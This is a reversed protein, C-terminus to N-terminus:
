RRVGALARARALNERDEVVGGPTECIFTKEQLRADRLLTRFGAEGIEGQGIHWHRDRNSGRPDRADNCHIAPVRGLGFAADAEDLWATAGKPSTLDYGAAHAHCTDLCLGVRADDLADLLEAAEAIRAAVAGPGGATLEVLLRADPVLKLVTLVAAAARDVADERPSSQDRGAHVIVYGDLRRAKDAAHVLSAVSKAYLEPDPTAINILYPTHLLVPGIDKADFAARLEADGAPDARSLAWARPNSSFIQVTECGREVAFEVAKLAGKSVSVQVGFRM